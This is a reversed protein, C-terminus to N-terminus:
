TKSGGIQQAYCFACWAFATWALDQASQLRLWPVTYGMFSQSTFLHAFTALVFGTAILWLLLAWAFKALADVSITM